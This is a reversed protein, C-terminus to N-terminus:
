TLLLLYPRNQHKCQPRSAPYAPASAPPGIYTQRPYSPPQPVYLQQQYHRDERMSPMHPHPYPMAWLRSAAEGYSDGRHAHPFPPRYDSQTNVNYYPVIPPPYMSVPGTPYMPMPTLRSLGADVSRIRAQSDGGLRGADMASRSKYTSPKPRSPGAASPMPKAQSVEKAKSPATQSDDEDDSQMGVRHSGAALKRRKRRNSAKTSSSYPEPNLEGPELEADAAKRKGKPGNATPNTSSNSTQFGSNVDDDNYALWVAAIKADAKNAYVSDAVYTKFQLKPGVAKADYSALVPLKLTCGVAIRTRIIYSTDDYPVLTGDNDVRYEYAQVPEHLLNSAKVCMSSITSLVRETVAKRMAPTIQREIEEAASRIYSGLGQSFALLCVASKADNRKHFIPDVLYSRTHKPRCVRLLCGHVTFRFLTM